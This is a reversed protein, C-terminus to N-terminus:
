DKLKRILQYTQWGSGAFGIAMLVPTTWSALNMKKVLLNGILYGALPGGLLIMPLTLTLGLMWM